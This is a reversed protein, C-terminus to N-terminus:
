YGELEEQQPDAMLQRLRARSIPRSEFVKGDGTEVAVAKSLPVQKGFAVLLNAMTRPELTVEDRLPGLARLSFRLGGGAELGRSSLLRSLRRLPIVEEDPSTGIRIRLLDDEIAVTRPEDGTNFLLLRYFGLAEEPPLGLEESLERAHARDPGEDGFVSTLMGKLGPALPGVWRSVEEPADRRPISAGPWAKRGQRLRPAIVWVVAALVVGATLAIAVGQIWSGQDRQRM